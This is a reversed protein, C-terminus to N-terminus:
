RSARRRPSVLVRTKAGPRSAVLMLLAARVLAAVPIALLRWVAALRVLIEDRQRLYEQWREDAIYTQQM